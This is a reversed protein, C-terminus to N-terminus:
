HTAVLLIVGLRIKSCCPAAVPYLSCPDHAINPFPDQKTSMRERQFCLDVMCEVISHINDYILDNLFVVSKM